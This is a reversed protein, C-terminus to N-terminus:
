ISPPLTVKPPLEFPYTMPIPSTMFMPIELEGIIEFTKNTSFKFCLKSLM